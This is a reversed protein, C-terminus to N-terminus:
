VAQAGLERRLCRMLSSAEGKTLGMAAQAECLRKGDAMHQAFTRVRDRPLLDERM